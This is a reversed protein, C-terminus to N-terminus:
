RLVSPRYVPPTWVAIVGPRRHLPRGWMRSTSGATPRAKGAWTGGGCMMGDRAPATGGPAVLPRGVETLFTPAGLSLTRGVRCVRTRQRGSGRSAPRGAREPLACLGDSRQREGARPARRRRAAPPPDRHHGPVAPRGDGGTRQDPRYVLGPCPRATAGDGAPPRPLRQQLRGSGVRQLRRRHVVTPAPPGPRGLRTSPPPLQEVREGRGSVFATPGALFFPIDSGLTAGIRSLEALSLGLRWHRNLAVLATAADSSGGGLGAAVPIGKCLRLAAGRQCGTADQLARAAQLVLNDPGALTSRDCTFRLTAAPAVHLEDYLGVAQIVSAIEHFGDPRRGLIELALNIKAPARYLDM